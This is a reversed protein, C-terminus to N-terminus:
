LKQQMMQGPPERPPNTTLVHREKEREREDRTRKRKNEGRATVASVRSKERERKKETVRQVPLKACWVNVSPCCYEGPQHKQNVRRVKGREKEREGKLDGLM